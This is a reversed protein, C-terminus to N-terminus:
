EDFDNVDFVMRGRSNLYTGFNEVHLDGHIWIREAGHAAYPDKSATVDAFFLCATGRYFSHPDSAMKRYKTRFAVPDARMLPAFADQLVDVITSTRAERRPTMFGVTTPYSCRM